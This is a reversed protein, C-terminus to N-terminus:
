ENTCIERIMSTRASNASCFLLVLECEGGRFSMQNENEIMKKFDNRRRTSSSSRSSAREDDDKVLLKGQRIGFRLLSAALLM